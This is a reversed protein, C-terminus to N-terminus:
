AANILLQGTVTASISDCDCRAPVLFTGVDTVQDQTITTSGVDHVQTKSIGLVCPDLVRAEPGNQGCVFVQDGEDLLTSVQEPCALKVVYRKGGGQIDEPTVSIGNGEDVVVPEATIEVQRQGNPGTSEQIAIGDGELFEIVEANVKYEISGDPRTTPTVINGTVIDRPLCALLVSIPVQYSQGAVCVGVRMEDCDVSDRFELECINTVTECDGSELVITTPNKCSM